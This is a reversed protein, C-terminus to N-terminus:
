VCVQGVAADIPMNVCMQRVLKSLFGGYMAQRDGGGTNQSPFALFCGQTSVWGETVGQAWDQFHTTQVNEGHDMKAEYLLMWKKQLNSHNRALKEFNYERIMQKVELVAWLHGRRPHHPRPQYCEGAEMGGGASDFIIASVCLTAQHGAAGRIERHRGGPLRASGPPAAAPASRSSRRCRWSGSGGAMWSRGPHATSISAASPLSAQNQM